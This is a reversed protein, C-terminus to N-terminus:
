RAFSRLARSLTPVTAEPIGSLMISLALHGKEEQLPIPGFTLGLTMAAKSKMITHIPSRRLAKARSRGGPMTEMSKEIIKDQEGRDSWAGRCTPCYDIEIGHRESIGWDTEKCVPRKM